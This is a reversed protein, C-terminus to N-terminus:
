KEHVKESKIKKSKMLSSLEQFSTKDELIETRKNRKLM